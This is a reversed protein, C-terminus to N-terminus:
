REKSEPEQADPAKPQLPESPPPRPPIKVERRVGGAVLIATLGGATNADEPLMLRAWGDEATTGKVLRGDPLRLFVAQDAAPRRTLSPKLDSDDKVLEVREITEIHGLNYLSRVVGAPVLVLPAVIRIELPLGRVEYAAVGLVIMAFDIVLIGSPPHKFQNVHVKYTRLTGRTCREVEIVSVDVREAGPTADADQEKRCDNVFKIDSSLLRRTETTSPAACSVSALAAITSLTSAIARLNMTTAACANM